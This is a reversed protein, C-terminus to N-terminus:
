FQGQVTFGGLTPRLEINRRKRAIALSAVGSVLTACTLVGTGIMWRELSRGSQYLAEDHAPASSYKGYLRSIEIGQGILVGIGVGGLATLTIGAIRLRQTQPAVSPPQDTTAPEIRAPPNTAYGPPRNTAPGTHKPIPSDCSVRAARKEDVVLWYEAPFEPGPNDAGVMFWRLLDIAACISKSDGRKRFDRRLAVTSALTIAGRTLQDPQRRAFREFLQAATRYDEAKNARSGQDLLQDDTVNEVSLLHESDSPALIFNLALVLSLM